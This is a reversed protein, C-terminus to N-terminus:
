AGTECVGRQLFAALPIGRTQPRFKSPSLPQLPRHLSQMISYVILPDLDDEGIRNTYIVILDLM